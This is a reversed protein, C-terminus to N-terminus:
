LVFEIVVFGGVLLAFFLWALWDFYRDIFRQIGPGFYYILGAVLFFRLSRSIASALMFVPFSIRFVGSSLTFVKYPIPTFGAAFVAWFDWRDYLDQVREFAEPSVGPVYQFFFPEAAVWFGWGIGYGVAGGVISGVSCIFAFWLAKRPSGLSLAVLLPDPPIPFFSSEAFSLGGLAYPGQPRDAWGVVWDYMRRFFSRNDPGQERLEDKPLPPDGAPDSM